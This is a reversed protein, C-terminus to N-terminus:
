KVPQKQFGLHGTISGHVLSDEIATNNANQLKYHKRAVNRSSLIGYASGDATKMNTFEARDQVISSYSVTNVDIYTMLSEEAAWIELTLCQYPEAPTGKAYRIVNSNPKLHSAIVEFLHNLAAKSEIPKTGKEPRVRQVRWAIEGNPTITDGTNKDIEIYRFKLYIDYGVANEARSFEVKTNSKSLLFYAIDYFPQNIHFDKVISTEATIRKGSQKNVINLKYTAEKNLADKNVYVVQPQYAFIGSDKPVDYSMDCPLTRKLQNDVYEDLSVTINDYYSINDLDRAAVIANDRTQYAKYVKIYHNTENPNLLGYVVTVDKYPANQDFEPECAIFLILAVLFSIVLSIISWIKQM